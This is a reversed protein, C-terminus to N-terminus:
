FGSLRAICAWIAVFLVVTDSAVSILRKHVRSLNLFKNIM